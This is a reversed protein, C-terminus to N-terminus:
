FPCWKEEGKWYFKKHIKDYRYKVRYAGLVVGSFYIFNESQYEYVIKRVRRDYLKRCLYDIFEKMANDFNDYVEYIMDKDTTIIYAQNNKYWLKYINGAQHEYEQFEKLYCGILEVDLREM